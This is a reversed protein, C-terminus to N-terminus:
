LQSVSALLDGHDSRFTGGPLCQSKRSRLHQFKSTSCPPPLLVCSIGPSESSIHASNESQNCIHFDFKNQNLWFQPNQQGFMPGPSYPGEQWTSEWTSELYKILLLFLFLEFLFFILFVLYLLIRQSTVVSIWYIQESIWEHFCWNGKTYLICYWM